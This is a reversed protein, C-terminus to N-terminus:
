INGVACPPPLSRLEGRKEQDFELKIQLRLDGALKEHEDRGMHIRELARAAPLVSDPNDGDVEILKAYTREAADLDGLQDDYLRALELLLEAHLFTSDASQEAAKELVAAREADAGRLGAVRALEQRVSADQPDALVAKSLAGLQTSACRCRM